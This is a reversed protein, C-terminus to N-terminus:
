APEQEKQVIAKYFSKMRKYYRYVRHYWQLFSLGALFCFFFVLVNSIIKLKYLFFAILVFNLFASRSLRVVSRDIALDDRSFQSCSNYVRARVKEYILSSVSKRKIKNKFFGLLGTEQQLEIKEKDVIKKDSALLFSSDESFIFKFLNEEIFINQFFYAISNILWGIQYTLVVTYITLMTSSNKITELVSGDNPKKLLLGFFVKDTDECWYYLSLVIWTLGFFGIVVMEAIIATTAL